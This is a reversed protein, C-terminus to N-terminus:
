AAVTTTRMDEPLIIAGRRVMEFFCDKCARADGMADHAGEFSKGFLFQHLEDLTPWKYGRRFAGAPPLQCLDTGLLMTCFSHLGESDHSVGYINAERAMMRKDFSLSHAVRGKAQAKLVNFQTLAETMPIGLDDCKELSHGHVAQAEPEIVWGDPKILTCMEAVVTGDMDCLLAALQVVRPQSPDMLDLKFDLKGTTETDFILFM